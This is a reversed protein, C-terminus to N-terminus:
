NAGEKLLGLKTKQIQSDTETKGVCENTKNKLNWMYTIDDLIQRERDPKIGNLMINKLDMRIVAFLLENKRIDPYYELIYVIM